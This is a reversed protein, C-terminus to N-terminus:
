DAVGPVSADPDVPTAEQEPAPEGPIAAADPAQEFELREGTVTAFQEARLREPIPVLGADLALQDADSLYAGLFRQVEDRELSRTPVYLVTRRSLPYQGSTITEQSPFICDPQGTPVTAQEAPTVVVAEDVALSQPDPILPAPAPEAARDIELPRLQEEFLEYFSFSVYGVTGRALAGLILEERRLAVRRNIGADFREAARARAEAKEREVLAANRAELEDGDVEIRLRRNRRNTQEIEELVREDARAEARDIAAQRRGALRARLRQEYRRARDKAAKEGPRNVVENKVAVDSNEARYDDRFAALSATTASSGLVRTVFFDFTRSGEDPGTTVLALDDFGLQLWNDITSGRRFIENVDPVGVCDGGVDSQNRTAVVIADSAVQLPPGLEVGNRECEALEDEALPRTVEAVDVDGSCLRDFTAADGVADYEVTIGVSAQNFTGAARSTISGPEEGAVAVEGDPRPALEEAKARFARMEQQEVARQEVFDQRETDAGETDVGCAALAVASIVVALALPPRLRV